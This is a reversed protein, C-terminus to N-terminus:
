RIVDVADAIETQREYSKLAFIQSFGRFRIKPPSPPIRVRSRSLGNCVKWAHAKSWEAVEGTNSDIKLPSKSPRM